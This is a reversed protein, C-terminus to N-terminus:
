NRRWSIRWGKKVVLDNLRAEQELDMKSSDYGISIGHSNGDPNNFFDYLTLVIMEVSRYDLRCEYFMFNGDSLSKLGHQGCDVKELATCDSFMRYGNTVHSLDGSFSTLGFCELFMSSANVLSSPFDVHWETMAYCGQFMSEANVLGEPLEIDWSELSSCGAFMGKTEQLTKPLEVTWSTLGTCMYFMDGATRLNAPLEGTFTKLGSCEKFMSFTDALGAPLDVTWESLGTCKSFMDNVDYLNPPMKANFVKLGSCNYFLGNAYVLNPMEGYWEISYPGTAFMSNLNSNVLCPLDAKWVVTDM